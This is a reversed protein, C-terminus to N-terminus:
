EPTGPITEALHARARSEFLNALEAHARKARPDRANISAQRAQDARRDFYAKDDSSM